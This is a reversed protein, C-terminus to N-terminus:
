RLSQLAKRCKRSSEDNSVYTQGPVFNPDKVRPPPDVGDQKMWVTVGWFRPDRQSSTLGRFYVRRTNHSVCMLLIAM